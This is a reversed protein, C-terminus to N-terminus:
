HDWEDDGSDEPDGPDPPKDLLLKLAPALGASSPQIHKPAAPPSPLDGQSGVQNGAKIFDLYQSMMDTLWKTCEEQYNLRVEVAKSDPLLGVLSALYKQYKKRSAVMSPNAVWEARARLLVTVLQGPTLNVNEALKPTIHKILNKWTGFNLPYDPPNSEDPKVILQPYVKDVATMFVDARAAGIYSADKETQKSLTDEGWKDVLEGRSQMGQIADRVADWRVMASDVESEALLLSLIERAKSQDARLFAEGFKRDVLAPVGIYHGGAEFNPSVSTLKNAFAMDLDIGKVATVKGDPATQVFYNNVHRDVQGAIADLVALVSLLRQLNPDGLYIPNKGQSRLENAHASNVAVNDNSSAVGMQTGGVMEQRFGLKASSLSVKNATNTVAKHTAFETKALVDTKLLQELRAMAVARAGWNPDEMPIGLLNGTNRSKEGDTGYDDAAFLGKLENNTRPDEHVVLDLKKSAEGLKQDVGWKLNGTSFSPANIARGTQVDERELRVRPLLLSLLHGRERNKTMRAAASREKASVGEANPKLKENRMEREDDPEEGRASEHSTM